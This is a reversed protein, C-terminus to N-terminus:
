LRGLVRNRIAARASLKVTRVRTARFTEVQLKVLIVAVADRQAATLQAPNGSPTLTDGNGDFYEFALGISPVNKILTQTNGAATRLVQKLSPDYTYLVSEANPDVANPDITGSSDSDWQVLLRDSRADSIGTAGATTLATGQPDYAAVRLERAMFGMAARAGEGADLDASQDGLSRLQTRYFMWGAASLVLSIIMTVMFETISFGATGLASRRRSSLPIPNM